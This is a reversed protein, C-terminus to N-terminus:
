EHYGNIVKLYMNSLKEALIGVHMSHDGRLGALLPVILGCMVAVLAVLLWKWSTHTIRLLSIGLPRMTAMVKGSLGLGAGLPHCAAM